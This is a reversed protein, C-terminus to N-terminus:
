KPSTSRRVRRGHCRKFKVGSGCPCAENRGVKGFPSGSREADQLINIIQRIEDPTAGSDDARADRAVQYVGMLVALLISILMTVSNKDWGSTAKNIARAMEPSVQAVEAVPDDPQEDVIRQLTLRLADIVERSWTPAELVEIGEARFNFTGDILRVDGGCHPCGGGTGNGGLTVGTSNEIHLGGQPAVARGCRVCRGPVDTM